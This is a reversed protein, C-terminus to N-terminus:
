GRKRTQHCSRRMDGQRDDNFVRWSHRSARHRASGARLLEAHLCRPLAAAGADRGRPILMAPAPPVLQGTGVLVATPDRLAPRLAPRAPCRQHKPLFGARKPWSDRISTTPFSSPLLSPGNSGMRARRVFRHSIGTFPLLLPQRRSGRATLGTCGHPTACGWGASSRPPPHHHPSRSPAAFGQCRPM